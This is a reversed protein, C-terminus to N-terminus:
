FKNNQIFFIFRFSFQQIIGIPVLTSIRITPFFDKREKTKKHDRYWIWGKECSFSFFVISRCISFICFNFFNNQYASFISSTASTPKTTIIDTFYFFPSSPKLPFIMMIVCRKEKHFIMLGDKMLLLQRM